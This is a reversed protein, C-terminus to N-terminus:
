NLKELSAFGIAESDLKAKNSIPLSARNPRAPVAGPMEASMVVALCVYGHGVLDV